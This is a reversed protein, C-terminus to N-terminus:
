PTDDRAFTYCNCAASSGNSPPFRHRLDAVTRELHAEVQGEASVGPGTFPQGVEGGVLESPDEVVEDAPALAPGLVQRTDDSATRALGFIRGLLSGGGREAVGGSGREDM